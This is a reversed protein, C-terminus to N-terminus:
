YADYDVSLHPESCSYNSLLQILVKFYSEVFNPDTLTSHSGYSGAAASSPSAKSDQNELCHSSVSASPQSPGRQVNDKVSSDDEVDFNDTCAINIELLKKSRTSPQETLSQIQDSEGGNQTGYEMAEGVESLRDDEEPSGTNSTHENDYMDLLAHESLSSVKPAFFASLKPQNDALQDLQYPLGSIM